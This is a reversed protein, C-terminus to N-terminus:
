RTRGPESGNEPPTLFPGGPPRECLLAAATLTQWFYPVRHVAFLVVLVFRGPKGQRRPLVLLCEYGPERVNGGIGLHILRVALGCAFSSGGQGPQQLQRFGPPFFWFM